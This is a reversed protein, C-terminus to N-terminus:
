SVSSATARPSCREPRMMVEAARSMIITKAPKAAPFSSMMFCIPSPMTIATRMSAVRTRMSSTGAVIVTRPLAM